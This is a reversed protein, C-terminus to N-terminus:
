RLPVYGDNRLLLSRLGREEVVSAAQDSRFSVDGRASV